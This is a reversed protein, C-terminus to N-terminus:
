PMRRLAALLSAANGARQPAVYVRMSGVDYARAGNLAIAPPAPHGAPMVVAWRVPGNGLAAGYGLYDSAAISPVAVAVGLADFNYHYVDFYDGYVLRIGHASLFARMAADDRLQARLVARGPTGPLDYLAINPVLLLAVAALALVARGRRWIWDIGLALLLTAAPYVPAVYRVTWGRVSGATSFVDLILATFVIGGFLWALERSRLENVASTQDAARLSAVFGIAAIALGVCLPVWIWPAGGYVFLQALSAQFFWAANSWLAASGSVPAVVWNHAFTPYGGTVNAALWPAAGACTAVVAPLWERLPNPRRYAVIWVLAPLTVMMTQLSMWVGLGASLGFAAAIWPSGRRRWVIALALTAVCSAAIEGYGWPVYTVTLFAAPPFAALATAICAARAGLAVRALVASAALYLAGWTLGTLALALRSTGAVAFFASTVYCSAAGLRYGGPFFAPREGARIALACLGSLM